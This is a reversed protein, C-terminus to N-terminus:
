NGCTDNKNGNFLTVYEHEDDEGFDITVTGGNSIVKALRALFREELFDNAQLTLQLLRFPQPEKSEDWSEHPLAKIQM